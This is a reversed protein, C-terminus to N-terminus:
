ENIREKKCNKHEEIFPECVVELQSLKLPLVTQEAGCHLCVIEKNRFVIHDTKM